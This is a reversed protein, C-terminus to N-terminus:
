ILNNRANDELLRLRNILQQRTLGGYENYDTGTPSSSSSQWGLPGTAYCTVVPPKPKPSGPGVAYCTVVPPKPKPSGPGVAYCTVVPPKPKPSGPGVAYCTVVPPKPKPSGPGVAYCTVVPPRINVTDHHGFPDSGRTPTSPTEMSKRLAPSGSLGLQSIESLSRPTPNIDAM